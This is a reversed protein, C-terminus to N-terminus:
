PDLNTYCVGLAHYLGLYYLTDYPQHSCSYERYCIQAVLSRAFDVSQFKGQLLLQIREECLLAM